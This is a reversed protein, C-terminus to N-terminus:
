QAAARIFPPAASATTQPPAPAQPAAVPTTKPRPGYVAGPAFAGTDPYRVAMVRLFADLSDVAAVQRAIERFEASTANEPTTLVEFAHRDAGESMKAAFKSTFRDLGLKDHALTYGLAARLLDAREV